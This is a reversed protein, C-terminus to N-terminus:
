DSLRGRPDIRGVIDPRLGPLVDAFSGDDLAELAAIEALFAAAADRNGAGGEVVGHDASRHESTPPFHPRDSPEM